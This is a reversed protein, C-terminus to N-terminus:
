IKIKNMQLKLDIIESLYIENLFENYFDERKYDIYEEAKLIHYNAKKIKKLKLYTKALWYHAECTYESQKLARKLENIAKEYNNLKFQSIGLYVFTQVDVWEDGNQNIISQNFYIISTNYDKKGFYCEGRLFDIDENWPADVFNPTLSDLKNFDSLAKDYNRLKRLNIWGRYGLHKEPELEVAKNLYKFGTTFDGAKNFDISYKYYDNSDTSEFAEIKKAKEAYEKQYIKNCFYLYGLIGIVFIFLLAGIAKFFKKLLEM